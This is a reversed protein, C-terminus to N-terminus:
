GFAPKSGYLYAVGKPRTPELKAEAPDVKLGLSELTLVGILPRAGEFTAVVVPAERDEIRIVLSYFQAEIDRGDGLELRGKHPMKVARIRKLLEEPLLTYTAGTDVMVDRLEETEEESKLLVNVHIHGM